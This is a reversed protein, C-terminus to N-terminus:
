NSPIRCSETQNLVTRDSNVGNVPTKAPSWRVVSFFYQSWMSWIASSLKLNESEMNLIMMDDDRGGTYSMNMSGYMLPCIPISLLLALCLRVDDLSIPSILSSYTHCWFLFLRILSLMCMAFSALLWNFFGSAWCKVWGAMFGLGCVLRCYMSFGRTRNESQRSIVISNGRRM